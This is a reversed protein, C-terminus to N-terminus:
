AKHLRLIKEIETIDDDVLGFWRYILQDNNQELAQQEKKDTTQLLLRTNAILQNITTM